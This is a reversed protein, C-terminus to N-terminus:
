KMKLFEFLHVVLLKQLSWFEESNWEHSFQCSDCCEPELAKDKMSISIYYSLCLEKRFQGHSLSPPNASVLIEFKTSQPKDPAEGTKCRHYLVVSPLFYVMYKYASLSNHLSPLFSFLNITMIVPWHEPLKLFISM